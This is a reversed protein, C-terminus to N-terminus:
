KLYSAIAMAAQIVAGFAAFGTAWQVAIAARIQKDALREQHSMQKETLEAQFEEARKAQTADFKKREVERIDDGSALNAEWERRRNEVELAEGRNRFYLEARADGAADPTHTTIALTELQARTMKRVGRDDSGTRQEAM